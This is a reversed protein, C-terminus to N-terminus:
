SHEGEGYGGRRHPNHFFRNIGNISEDTAAGTRFGVAVAPRGHTPLKGRKTRYWHNTMMQNM